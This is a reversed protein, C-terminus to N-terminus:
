DEGNHIINVTPKQLHDKDPQPCEKGNRSQKSNQIPLYKKQEISIIM